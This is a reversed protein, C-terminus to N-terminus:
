PVQVIVCIGCFCRRMNQHLVISALRPLSTWDGNVGLEENWVKNVDDM